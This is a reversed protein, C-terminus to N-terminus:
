REPVARDIIIDPPPDGSYFYEPNCLAPLQVRQGNLLVTDVRGCVEWDGADSDPLDSVDRSLIPTPPKPEPAPGSSVSCGFM